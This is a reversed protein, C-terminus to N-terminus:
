CPRAELVSRPGGTAVTRELRFGAADLLSAYEPETREQGGLAVLMVVDGFRSFHPDDGAPLVSEIVLLRGDAPIAARVNRLITLARADDWDHLVWSLLYTDGAAPVHEFFDGAVLRCRTGVGAAELTSRGREIAHERDFLTGCLTPHSRLIAVLLEGSGGGVDVVHRAGAFDHAAVVALGTRRGIDAMAADFRAAEDPTRELYSFLDQGFAAEFAPRGTRLSHSVEGFARYLPGGNLLVWHRMSGEVDTRLLHGLPGLAFTEETPRTFVEVSALARLLRYLAAPDSGTERALEDVPRPGGALHDAVGLLAAAFLSQTVVYGRVLELLREADADRLVDHDYLSPV